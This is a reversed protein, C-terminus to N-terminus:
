GYTGYTHVADIAAKINEPPTRASLNCLYLALRGTKGGVEIYNKVRAVVEDPTSLDMFGAGIGLVLPVSRKDAYAKYAAPGIEAVDPDQGELFDPCVQLKLEFLDEPNKLHSEGVWNPVYVEPGCVKRLRLIWPIIWEKLIQPNVIPLSGTADSGVIGRNNPFKMKQYSIWPALVDQTLRDFLSRIYDPHSDIAALLNEIGLINAALSFPACFGLTPAVGTLESFISQMEIVTSFRGHTDFDPTKIKVLDGPGTILPRSRDVDPMGHDSYIVTQGLAEAEINYVDYDVVPVDIGYRDMIELTGASIYHPTTYFEKANIGLERMVFEHVQACVPVRDPIGKMATDMRKAGAQFASYDKKLDIKVIECFNGPM